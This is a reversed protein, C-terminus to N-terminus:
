PCGTFWAGLFDFIDQVTISNVGNFDATASGAFWAGLFDFIDQVSLGDTCNFDARCSPRPCECSDPILNGNSDAPAGARDFRVSAGVYSSDCAAPNMDASGVFTFVATNGGAGLHLAANFTAAPIPQSERSPTRACDIGGLVFFTGLSTGNLQLDITETTLSLDANALLEITVPGAADPVASLTTQPNANIGVPGVFPTSARYKFDRIDAVANGNCDPCNYVVVDDVYWGPGGTCGDKGFTFRLRINSGIVGLGSLDVVTRGWEGGIGTWVDQGALPDTNGVSASKLTGNYPNFEIATRPIAAFAAGNVSIEVRGGDFSGESGISHTFALVPHLATPPIAITQSTMTNTSSEDDGACDGVPRDECYAAKGPRNFPLPTSTLVWDYPTPPASNAVQWSLAQGEFSDSFLVQANACEPPVTTDDLVNNTQGCLGDTNMETALLALDVQQADFATFAAASPLGTRPDNPATGILDTAAQNLADYADKFDSAPTLYVTLARYWVAGSKILGIGAITRGNFAGGDTTLMFAHNPVGSGSHVGGSDSASCTEFVSNARDPQNRCTPDFMDRIAGGFASSGEAVLWRVGDPHSPRPSCVSRANNPLDLDSGSASPSPWPTGSPAGIASVNGNFLDVAEGFVDSFSENLQGSQNQYILGATYGTLGHTLEHSIVDDTVVGACFAAQAGNFFANPCAAATSNVTLVLSFGANDISDRNFGRRLYGYFDGAFDYAKDIDAVGTASAGEARALTGPLAAAANGDYIQRSLLAELLSWKDLLEGSNADIFAAERFGLADRGIDNLIIHYALRPGGGAPDGYWAPDVIVLKIAELAAHAGEPIERRAAREAGAADITPTVSMTPKIDYFRGNVGLIDGAATQHVKLVGSFVEVGKHVQQFTTHAQGLLDTEVKLWVLESAADRVGFLSGYQDFFRLSAARGAGAKDPLVPITAGPRAFVANAAGQFGNRRIVLDAPAAQDAFALPAAAGSAALLCVALALLKM